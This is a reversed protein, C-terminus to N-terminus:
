AGPPLAEPVQQPLRSAAGCGLREAVKRSVSNLVAMREDATSEVALPRPTSMSSRVFPMSGKEGKTACPFFIQASADGNVAAYTGIAYLLKRKSEQPTTRPSSTRVEVDITFLPFDDGDDTSYVSCISRQQVGKHLGKAMADLTFEDGPLEEFRDIRSAKELAAQAGADLTSDCLEAASVGPPGDGTAGDSCGTVGLAFVMPLVAWRAVAGVPAAGTRSRHIM